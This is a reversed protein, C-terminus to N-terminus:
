NEIAFRIIQKSKNKLMDSAIIEIVYNGPAFGKVPINTQVEKGNIRYEISQGGSANDTAAIYLMASSPYIDYKEDRISKTGIAKVSFHYYIEPAQNDIFFACKKIGETNNVNDTAQYELTHYGDKEATFPSTYTLKNGNDLTYSVNQIGSGAETTSINIATEHTIFLTDHRSYQNGQFFVKSQPANNDVFIQQTQALAFNGVFDSSAYMIYNLKEVSMSFPETYITKLLTNNIGYMIKDVGSKEDTANIKIKSRGSIYLYKGKYQDGIIEFSMVPPEKDIYYNFGSADANADMVDTSASIVKPEEKNGVNDIAYFLIKSKGDKLVALPIPASYIGEPGGNISCM